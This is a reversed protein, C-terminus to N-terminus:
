GEVPPDIVESPKPTEPEPISAVPRAPAARKKGKARVSRRPAKPAPVGTIQFAAPTEEGTVKWGQDSPYLREAKAEPVSYTRGDKHEVIVRKEPM